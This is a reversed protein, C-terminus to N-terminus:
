PASPCVFGLDTMVVRLRMLLAVDKSDQKRLTSVLANYEERLSKLAPDETNEAAVSPSSKYKSETTTVEHTIYNAGTNM